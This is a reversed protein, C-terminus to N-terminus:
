VVLRWATYIMSLERRLEHLYSHVHLLRHVLSMLFGCASIGRACTAPVSAANASEATELQKLPIGADQDIVTVVTVRQANGAVSFQYQGFLSCGASHLIERAMGGNRADIDLRIMQVLAKSGDDSVVHLGLTEAM